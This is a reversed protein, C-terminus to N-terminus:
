FNFYLIWWCFLLLFFSVQAVAFNYLWKLVIKGEDENGNEFQPQHHYDDQILKDTLEHENTVLVESNEQEDAYAEIGEVSTLFSCILLLWWCVFGCPM